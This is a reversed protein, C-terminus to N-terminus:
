LLLYLHFNMVKHVKSSMKPHTKSGKSKLSSEVSINSKSKLKEIPVVIPLNPRERDLKERCLKISM